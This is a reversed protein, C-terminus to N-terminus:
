DSGKCPKGLEKRTAENKLGVLGCKVCKAYGLRWVEMRHGQDKKDKAM